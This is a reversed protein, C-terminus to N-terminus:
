PGPSSQAHLERARPRGLDPRRIPSPRLGAFSDRVPPDTRESLRPRRRSGRHRMARRAPPRHSTAIDARAHLPCGDPRGLDEREVLTVLEDGQLRMLGVIDVQYIQRLRRTSTAPSRARDPSRRSSAQADGGLRRERALRAGGMPRDAPRSPRARCRRPGTGADPARSVHRAVFEQLALNPRGQRRPRQPTPRAPVDDPDPVALHLAAAEIGIWRDTADASGADGHPLGAALHEAVRGGTARQQRKNRSRVRARDDLGHAPRICAATLLGQSSREPEAPGTHPSSTNLREVLLCGSLPRWTSRSPPTSAERRCALCSPGTPRKQDSPPRGM